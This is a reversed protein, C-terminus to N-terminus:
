LVRQQFFRDIRLWLDREAAERYDRNGEENDFFAHGVGPYTYAEDTAPSGSLAQELARVDEIPVDGDLEGFVAMINANAGRVADIPHRWVVGDAQPLHVFPCVAVCADLKSDSALLVVSGGIWAGVAGVKKVSVQKRMADATERVKRAAALFDQASPDETERPTQALELVQVVFGANALSQASHLVAKDVCWRKPVLVIGAKPSGSKPQILM